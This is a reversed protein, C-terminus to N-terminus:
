ICADWRNSPMIEIAQKLGAAITGYIEEISAQEPYQAADSVSSPVSSVLPIEGCLQTLDFLFFSRLFYAEGLLQNRMAEDEVKDLNAIAMNARAIGSYYANWYDSHVNEETVLLHDSAQVDYDDQGGGGYCEDSALMATMWYSSGPEYVGSNLTNYVGTMLQLADQESGPFNGTNRDTFSETDLFAECGAFLTMAMLVAIPKIITKMITM